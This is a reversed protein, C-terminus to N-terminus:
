RRPVGGHPSDVVLPLSGGALYFHDPHHEIHFHSGDELAAIERLEEAFVARRADGGGIVLLSREEDVAVLVGGASARVEIGLLSGHAPLLGTGASVLGALRRLEEASGALLLEGDGAGGTIEM